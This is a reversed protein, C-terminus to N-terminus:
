DNFYGLERCAARVVSGGVSEFALRIQQRQSYGHETWVRWERRLTQIAHRGCIEHVMIHPAYPTNFKVGFDLGTVSDCADIFRADKHGPWNDLVFTSCDNPLPNMYPM